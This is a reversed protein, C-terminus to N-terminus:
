QRIKHWMDMKIKKFKTSLSINIISLAFTSIIVESV